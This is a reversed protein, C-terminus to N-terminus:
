ILAAGINLPENRDQEAIFLRGRDGKGQLPERMVTHFMRLIFAYDKNDIISESVIMSCPNQHAM